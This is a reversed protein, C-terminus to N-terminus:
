FDIIYAIGFSIKVSLCAAFHEAVVDFFESVGFIHALLFQSNMKTTLCVMEFHSFPKDRGQRLPERNMHSLNQVYRYAAEKACFYRIGFRFVRVFFQFPEVLLKRFGMLASCENMPCLAFSVQYQEEGEQGHEDTQSCPFFDNRNKKGTEAYQGAKKDQVAVKSRSVATVLSSRFGRWVSRVAVIKLPASRRTQM